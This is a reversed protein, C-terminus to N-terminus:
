LVSGETGVVSADSPPGDKGVGMLHSLDLPYAIKQLETDLLKIPIGTGYLGHVGDDSHGMLMRAYNEPVSAAVLADKFNHRFSHFTTKPTKAGVERLYRGFWKSFNHSFDGNAGPKIDEFLREKPRAARAAALHDSLGLEILTKHVPVRRISSLTKIQKKEGEGRRIDFYTVGDDSKIDSVLLQVIEGLRMGSYLAILPIWYKGDRIM